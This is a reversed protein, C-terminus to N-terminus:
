KRCVTFLNFIYGYPICGDSSVLPEVRQLLMKGAEREGLSHIAARAHSSSLALGIFPGPPLQLTVREIVHRFDRFGVAQQLEAAYDPRVYARPGGHQALFDVVAAAAPSGQDDRVYEIIALIGSPLLIRHAEHYFPPREFWHAATAAVVARANAAEFPLQQALGDLYTIGAAHASMDEAKRRMDSAPEIGIIPTDPPLLARLQRTFIGTGSGIDLVMGGSPPPEAVIAQSLTKVLAEPYEPRFTAYRDAHGQFRETIQDL